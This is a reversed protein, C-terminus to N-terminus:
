HQRQREDRILPRSSPTVSVVRVNPLVVFVDPRVNM